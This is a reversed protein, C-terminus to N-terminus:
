IRAGINKILNELKKRVSKFGKKNQAAALVYLTDLKDQYYQKRAVNLLLEVDGAAFDDSSVEDLKYQPYWLCVEVWSERMQQEAKKIAAAKQREAPDM